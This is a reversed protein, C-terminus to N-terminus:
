LYYLTWTIKSKRRIRIKKGRIIQNVEQEMAPLHTELHQHFEKILKGIESVLKNM